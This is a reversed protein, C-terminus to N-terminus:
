RPTSRVARAPLRHQGRSTRRRPVGPDEAPLQGPQLRQPRVPVVGVDALAGLYAPLEDHRVERRGVARQAPRRLRRVLHRDDLSTVRASSCCRCAATPSRTSCSRTSGRPQAPGRVGRASRAARPDTPGPSATSTARLARRGGREPAPAITPTPSRAPAVPRRAARLGRARRGLSGGDARRVRSSTAADVGMLSAGAVFDDTVLAVRERRDACPTSPVDAAPGVVIARVTRRASPACRGAAGLAPGHPARRRAGGAPEPGASRPGCCARHRARGRELRPAISAATSRRRRAPRRLPGAHADALCVRWTCRWADRHRRWCSPRASSARPRGVSRRALADAGRRHRRCARGAVVRRPTAPGGRPRDRRPLRDAARGRTTDALRRTVPQRKREPGFEPALDSGM